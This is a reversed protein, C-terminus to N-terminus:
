CSHHTYGITKKLYKKTQQRTCFIKRRILLVIYLNM